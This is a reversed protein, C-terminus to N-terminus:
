DLFCTSTFYLQVNDSPYKPCGCWSCDVDVPIRFLTLERLNSAHLCKWKKYEQITKHM